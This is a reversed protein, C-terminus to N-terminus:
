SNKPEALVRVKLNLPTDGGALVRPEGGEISSPRIVKLNKVTIVGDEYGFECTAIMGTNAGAGMGAKQAVLPKEPSAQEYSSGPADQYERKITIGKTSDSAITTKCQTELSRIVAETDACKYTDPEMVFAAPDAVSLEDRLRVTTTALLLQANSADMVNRYATFAAPVGAAMIISALLLIITTVLLEAVSFGQQSRTHARVRCSM